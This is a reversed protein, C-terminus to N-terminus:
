RGKRFFCRSKTFFCRGSFFILGSKLFIVPGMYFIVEPQFITVLGGHFIGGSGSFFREGGFFNADEWFFHYGRPFVAAKGFFGGDERFFRHSGSFIPSTEFFGADERFFRRRRLFFPPKGSLIFTPPYSPLLTPFLNNIHDHNSAASPLLPSFVSPLPCLRSFPFLPFFNHITLQYDHITLKLLNPSSSLCSLIGIKM